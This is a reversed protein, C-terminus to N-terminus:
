RDRQRQEREVWSRPMIPPRRQTPPVLYRALKLGVLTAVGLWVGVVGWSQAASLAIM